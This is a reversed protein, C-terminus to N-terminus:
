SSIIEVRGSRVWYLNSSLIRFSASSTKGSYTSEIWLPNQQYPPPHFQSFTAKPASLTFPLGKQSSKAPDACWNPWWSFISRNKPQLSPVTDTLWSCATYHFCEQERLDSGIMRLSPLRWLFCYHAWPVPSTIAHIFLWAKSSRTKPEWVISRSPELQQLPM